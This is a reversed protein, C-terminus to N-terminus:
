AAMIRLLTLALTRAGAMLDDIAVRESASHAQGPGAPGLGIVPIGLLRHIRAADFWASAPRAEPRSGTAEEAAALTATVLPHSSPIAYPHMDTTWRVSVPERAFWPDREPLGALMREFDERPLHGGWRGTREEAARAEAPSYALNLALLAEGPVIAPLTGAKFVGLTGGCGTHRREREALFDDIAEKTVIGKDIASVAGGHSSHGARGRVTMWATNIGNCGTAIQGRTGDLVIAMDGAVGAHCCAMTGAGGGGCEEDVVSAFLIRGRRLAGSEKLAKIAILGMVLGGKDDAAGRGHIHGDKVVPDFPAISMGTVGVTDMHGNLLVCKGGAAFSWEGTVNERGQWCRDAPGIPGGLAYIDPPVGIRKVAAGLERFRAEIWQQGAAEGAPSPDGAYPNVTPIAVLECLWAVLRDRLEDVRDLVERAVTKM